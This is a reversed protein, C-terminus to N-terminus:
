LDMAPVGEDTEKTEDTMEVKDKWTKKMKKEIYSNIRLHVKMPEDQIDEHRM